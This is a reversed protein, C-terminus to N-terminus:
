KLSWEINEINEKLVVIMYCECLCEDWEINESNVKLVITKYTVNMNYVNMESLIKGINVKLVITM